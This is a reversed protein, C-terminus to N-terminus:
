LDLFVIGGVKERWLSFNGSNYNWCNEWHFSERRNLNAGGNITHQTHTRGRRARHVTTSKVLEQPYVVLIHLSFEESEQHTELSRPFPPFEFPTKELPNRCHKRSFIRDPGRTQPSVLRLQSGQGTRPPMYRQSTNVHWRPFPPRAHWYALNADSNQPSVQINKTKDHKKGRLATFQTEKSEGKCSM